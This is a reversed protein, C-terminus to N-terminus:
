ARPDVRTSHIANSSGARKYEIIAALEEGLFFETKGCLPSYSFGELYEISKVEAPVPIDSVWLLFWLANFKFIMGCVHLGNGLIPVFRYSSGWQQGPEFRSIVYAGGGNTFTRLGFAIEVLRKEVQAQRRPSSRAITSIGSVVSNIM